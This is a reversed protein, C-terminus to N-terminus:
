RFDNRDPNYYFVARIKLYDGSFETPLNPLPVASTLAGWAARDLAVDGSSSELTMGQITGDKMISFVIVVVGKKMMPPLAAEPILPDWHSQVTIHVRKMYPGFDVGRTDSLIEINGRTDVRPRLGSGYDGSQGEVGAGNRNSAASHIAQSVSSGPSAITFPNSQPAPAELKATQTTQPQEVPVPAAGSQPAPAAQVTQQAPQPPPAPQPPGPRRADLLKRLMEKDPAPSQAIRNQDSIMDTRPPKVKLQDAPLPLFTIDKEQVPIIVPSKMVWKPMFILGLIAVAHVVISVWVAERRRYGSIDDRLDAILLHLEGDPVPPPPPPVERTPPEM